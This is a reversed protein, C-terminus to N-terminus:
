EKNFSTFRKNKTQKGEKNLYIEQKIKIYVMSDFTTKNSIDVDHFQKLNTEM